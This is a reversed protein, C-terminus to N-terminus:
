GKGLEETDNGCLDGGRNAFKTVLGPRYELIAKATAQDPHVICALAFKRGEVFKDARENHINNTYVQYATSNLPAALVIIGDFKPRPAPYIAIEGHKERLPALISEYQELPDSPATQGDENTESM